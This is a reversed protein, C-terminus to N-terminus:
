ENCILRYGRGRITDIQLNSKELKKRLRGVYVEIANETGEGDFTFLRDMLHAKSHARTPATFLVEFLRLEQNRLTVINDAIKLTGDLFDFEVNGLKAINTAKGRKRRLVARCRAELESFAFPKVLFDDAGKDLASIRDSLERCATIVIVSADKGKSRLGQLLARGDGDPLHLDLLIMDYSTVSLMADAACIDHVQDVIHGDLNLRQAIAGSLKINDEIVLFRM